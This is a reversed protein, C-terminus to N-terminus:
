NSNSTKNKIFLLIYASLPLIFLTFFLFIIYYDLIQLYKFNSRLLLNSVIFVILSVFIPFHKKYINLNELVTKLAYFTIIYKIFWGGVIQLLVFFEGSELFDFLSVLQSQLLKPYVFQLSREPGFTTIVGMMAVIEMQIVIVLALFSSKNLNQKDDIFQFFVFISAISSYCGLSKIVSITMERNFGFELIPYIYEIQKYKHTMFGLNIGAIFTFTLGIISIILITSLDSKISFLTAILFFIIIYWYPSDILLNGRTASAELTCSEILILFLSICFIISICYGITDGFAKKFVDTIKYVNTKQTTKTIFITALLIIISSITVSIWADRSAHQIILNPYTKLPVITVGFILFILHRTNIKKM